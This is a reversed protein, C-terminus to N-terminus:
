KLGRFFPHLFSIAWILSMGLTSFFSLSFFLAIDLPEGYAYYGGVGHWQHWTTRSVLMHESTFITLDIISTVSNFATYFLITDTKRISLFCSQTILDDFSYMMLASSLKPTCIWCMTLPFSKEIHSMKRDTGSFQVGVLFLDGYCVNYWLLLNHHIFFSLLPLRCPRMSRGVFHLFLLSLELCSSLPFPAKVKVVSCTVITAM